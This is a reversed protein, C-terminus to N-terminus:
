RCRIRGPRTRAPWPSRSGAGEITYTMTYSASVLPLDAHVIVQAASADIRKTEIDRVRWADGAHRWVTIDPAAEQRARNMTSKWAGMDNDTMARWFDPLPGRDLMTVGHYAYSGITGRVRDFVLAFDDSSFRIVNGANRMSLPPPAAADSVVLSSPRVRLSWQEWGLEHGQEAWATDHNLVFRITLWYETRPQQGPATLPLGSPLSLTFTKEGRPAIDLAPLDGHAVVEGRSSVIEWVASAQDKANVFDYWSRM